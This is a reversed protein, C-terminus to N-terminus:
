ISFRRNMVISVSLFFLSVGLTWEILLKLRRAINLSSTDPHPEVFANPNRQKAVMARFEKKVFRYQTMEKVIINLQNKTVKGDNLSNWLRSCSVLSIHISKEIRHDKLWVTPPNSRTGITIITMYM